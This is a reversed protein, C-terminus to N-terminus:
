TFNIESDVQRVGGWLTARIAGEAVSLTARISAAVIGYPSAV